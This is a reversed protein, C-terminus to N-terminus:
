LGSDNGLDVFKLGTTQGVSADCFCIMTKLVRNYHIEKWEACRFTQARTLIVGPPGNHTIKSSSSNLSGLMVGFGRDSLPTSVSANLFLSHRRKRKVFM